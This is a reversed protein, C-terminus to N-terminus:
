GPLWALIKPASLCPLSLCQIKSNCNTSLSFLIPPKKSCNNCYTTIQHRTNLERCNFRDVQLQYLLNNKRNKQPKVLNGVSLKKLWAAATQRHALQKKELLEIKLYPLTFMLRLLEYNYSAGLVKKMQQECEDKLLLMDRIKRTTLQTTEILATLIYLVWDRWNNKETVGRLLQYYETKYKLIHASLYLIPQELLLGQQVLYLANIIRGTRGNGDAFPHIAEFQYHIFAMKILPDLEASDSENIFRELEALKERLVDECCPPTYIIQGNVANKLATGVTKRIGSNDQKITQVIEVM